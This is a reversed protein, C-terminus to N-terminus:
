RLPNSAGSRDSPCLIGAVYMKKWPVAHKPFPLNLQNTGWLDSFRRGRHCCPLTPTTEGRQEPRGRPRASFGNKRDEIWSSTKEATRHPPDCAEPGNVMRRGECTRYDVEGLGGRLLHAHMCAAAAQSAERHAGQIPENRSEDGESHLDHSVRHHDTSSGNPVVFAGLMDIGETADRLEAWTTEKM